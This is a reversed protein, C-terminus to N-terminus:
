LCSIPALQSQSPSPLALSAFFSSFGPDEGRKSQKHPFQLDFKIEISKLMILLSVLVYIKSNLKSHLPGKAKSVKELQHRLTIKLEELNTTDFSEM